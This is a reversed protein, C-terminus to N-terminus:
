GARATMVVQGEGDEIWYDRGQACFIVPEDQLVPAFARFDFANVAGHTQEAMAALHQAMLRADVVPASFGAAQAVAPEFHVRNPSMTLAAYAFLADASFTCDRRVDPAQSRSPATDRFGADSLALEETLALAGRQLVTRKQGSGVSMEAAIGFRLPAHVRLKGATIVPGVAAGWMRWFYAHHFLVPVHQGHDPARRDMGLVAWLMAARAPDLRDAIPADNEEM